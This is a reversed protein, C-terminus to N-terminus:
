EKILNNYEAKTLDVYLGNCDLLDLISVLADEKTYGSRRQKVFDYKAKVLAPIDARTSTCEALRRSVDSPLYDTWVISM